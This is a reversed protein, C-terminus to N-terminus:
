KRISMGIHPTIHIGHYNKYSSVFDYAFASGIEFNLSETTKFEINIKGGIGMGDRFEWMSYEPINYNAAVEEAWSEMAVILLFSVHLGIGTVIRIRETVDFYFAPGIILKIPTIGFIDIKKGNYNMGTTFLMSTNGFLGIPYNKSFYYADYYFGALFMSCSQNEKTQWAGDSFDGEQWMMNGTFGFSFQKEVQAHLNFTGICIGLILFFILRKM